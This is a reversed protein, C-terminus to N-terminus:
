LAAEDIAGQSSRLDLFDGALEVEAASGDECDMTLNVRTNRDVPLQPPMWGRAAFTRRALERYEELKDPAPITHALVWVRRGNKLRTDWLCQIPAGDARGPVPGDYDPPGSLITVELGTGVPPAELWVVHQEDKIDLVRLESEPIRFRFELFFGPAIELAPWELDTRMERTIEERRMLSQAHEYTYGIYRVPGKDGKEYHIAAKRKGRLKDFSAYIDQRGLEIRWTASRRGNPKGVAIRLLNKSSM